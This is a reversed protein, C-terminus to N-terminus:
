MGFRFPRQPRQRTNDNGNFRLPRQARPRANNNNNRQHVLKPALIPESIPTTIPATRKSFMNNYEKKIQMRMKENKNRQQNFEQKLLHRMKNERIRNENLERRVKERMMKEFMANKQQRNRYEKAVQYRVKAALAENEQSRKLKREYKRLKHERKMINEEKSKLRKTTRNINKNYNNHEHHSMRVGQILSNKLDRMNYIRGMRDQEKVYSILKTYKNEALVNKIARNLDNFNNNNGGYKMVLRQLRCSM